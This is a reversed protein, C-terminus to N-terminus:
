RNAEDIKKYINKIDSFINNLKEKEDCNDVLIEIIKEYFNIVKENKLNTNLYSLYKSYIYREFGYKLLSFSNNLETEKKNDKLYDLYKYIYDKYEKNNLYFESITDFLKKYFIISSRFEIDTVSFCYIETHMDRFILICINNIFDNFTKFLNKTTEEINSLDDNEFINKLNNYEELILNPYNDISSAYNLFDLKTKYNDFKM